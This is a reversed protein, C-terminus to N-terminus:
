RKPPELASLTKLNRIVRAVLLAAMTVAGAAGIVDFITAGVVGVHFPLPPRFLALTNLAILIARAETPGMWAYGFQFEGFAHTELYVNISLILYAIVIALGVSLLMYPSLGLGLGVATTSYADTLHDLYFGYRPREIKRVRALTGDLSDGFWNIVLGLSAVWLWSDSRNSLAYAVAIVTSGFVGVLTLHDPAVWRPLAAALRPLAWREFRALFFVSRREHHRADGTM